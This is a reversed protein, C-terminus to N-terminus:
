PQPLLVLRTSFVRGPTAFRYFYIGAPARSGDERKGNWALQTTGAAFRGRFVTTVRRGSVDFVSVDGDVGDDLTVSFRSENRFPNPRSPSLVTPLSDSPVPTWGATDVVVLFHAPLHYTVTPNGEVTLALDMNHHGERQLGLEFRHMWYGGTDPCAPGPSLTLALHSTDLIAASTVVPCLFPANGGLVLAMPVSPTPAWPDTVVFSLLAPPPPPPPPPESSSVVDFTFEGQYVSVGSDPRDMTLEVSVTHSGAALVGLNFPAAWDSIVSDGPCDYTSRVRVTLHAPDIVTASEIVGCGTPYIGYLIFQTPTGAVPPSPYTGFGHTYRLDATAVGALTSLGAAVIVAARALRPGIKRTSPNWRM